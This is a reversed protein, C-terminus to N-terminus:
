RRSHAGLAPDGSRLPVGAAPLDLSSRFTPRPWTTDFRTGCGPSTELSVSGGNSEVLSFVIALGLGTGQGLGKTTFFPDFARERTKADMGPGDDAVSIRVGSATAGASIRIRGREGVADRANGVLNTLVREVQFPDAELDPTDKGIDAELSVGPPLDRTLRDTLNRLYVGTEIREPTRPSKRAFDLLDRTLDACYRAARTLDDIRSLRDPAADEVIPRLLTAQGLIVTLKNNFDHAVGGALRGLTELRRSRDLEEAMRREDTVDRALWLQGEGLAEPVPHPDLIIIRGDDFAIEQRAGAVPPTSVEVDAGASRLRLLAEDFRRGVLEPSHSGLLALFAPNMARIREQADILILGDPVANILTELAAKANEAARTARALLSGTQLCAIWLGTILWVLLGITPDTGLAQRFAMVGHALPILPLSWALVPEWPTSDARSARSRLIRGAAVASALLVLFAQAQVAEYSLFPESAARALGVGFCAPWLWRPRPVDSFRAAGVYLLTAFITGLLPYAPGFVPWERSLAASAGALYACAWGLAWERGGQRAGLRITVLAIAIIFLIGAAYLALITM